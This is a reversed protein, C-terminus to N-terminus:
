NNIEVFVPDLYTENQEPHIGSINYTMLLLNIKKEKKNEEKFVLYDPVFGKLSQFLKLRGELFFYSNHM